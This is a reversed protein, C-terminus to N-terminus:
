RARIQKLEEVFLKINEKGEVKQGIGLKGKAKLNQKAEALYVILNDLL